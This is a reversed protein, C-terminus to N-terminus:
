IITCKQFNPRFVRHFKVPLERGDEQRTTYIPDPSLKGGMPIISINKATNTRISFCSILFNDALDEMNRDLHQKPPHEQRM